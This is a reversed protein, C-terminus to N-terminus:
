LKMVNQIKLSKSRCPWGFTRLGTWNTFAVLAYTKLRLQLSHSGPNETIRQQDTQWKQTSVNM